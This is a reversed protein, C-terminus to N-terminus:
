ASAMPWRCDFGRSARSAGPCKLVSRAGDMATGVIGMLVTWLVEHQCYM